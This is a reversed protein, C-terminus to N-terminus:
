SEDGYLVKFCYDDEGDEYIGIVGAPTVGDELGPCSDMTDTVLDKVVCIVNSHTIILPPSFPNLKCELADGVTDRFDILSEGHTPKEKPFAILRAIEEQKSDKPEGDFEPGLAWPFFCRCQEICRGGLIGTVIEATQVARLMPSSIVTGIEQTKLFEAAKRVQVVGEDSLPFDCGRGAMLEDEHLAAGHRMILACLREAM